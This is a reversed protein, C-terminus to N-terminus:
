AGISPSNITPTAMFLDWKKELTVVVLLGLSGLLCVSLCVSLCSDVRAESSTPKKQRRQGLCSTLTGQVPEQNALSTWHRRSRHLCDGLFLSAPAPSV